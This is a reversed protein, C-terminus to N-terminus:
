LIIEETIEKAKDKTGELAAKGWTEASRIASFAAQETVRRMENLTKETDDQPQGNNAMHELEKEAKSITRLTDSVM